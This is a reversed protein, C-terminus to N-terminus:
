GLRAREALQKGFDRIESGFLSRFGGLLAAALGEHLTQELLAKVLAPNDRLYDRCAQEMREHLHKDVLEQMLPPKTETGRYHSPVERPEFLFKHVGRDILKRLEEDTMMSGMSERLRETFRDEFTPAKVIQESM